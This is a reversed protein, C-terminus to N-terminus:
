KAVPKGRQEEELASSSIMVIVIGVIVANWLHQSVSFGLVWPSMVLWVGFILNVWEEWLHFEILAGISFIALAIGVLNYNGIVLGGVATGIALPSLLVWVALVLNLWDQWHQKKM